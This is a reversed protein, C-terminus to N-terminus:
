LAEIVKLKNIPVHWIEKITRTNHAFHTGHHALSFNMAPEHSPYPSGFNAKQLEWWGYTDNNHNAMWIRILYYEGEIVEDPTVQKCHM